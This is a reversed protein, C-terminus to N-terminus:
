IPHKCSKKLFRSFSDSTIRFLIHFIMREYKLTNSRILSVSVTFDKKLENILENLEDNSHIDMAEMLLDFKNTECESSEFALDLFTLLECEDKLGLLQIM